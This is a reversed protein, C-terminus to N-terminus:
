VAEKTNESLVDEYMLKKGGDIWMSEIGKVKFSFGEEEGWVYVFRGKAKYMEDVKLLTLLQIIMDCGYATGVRRDKDESWNDLSIYGINQHFGEEYNVTINFTLFGRDGCLGFSASEIHALRKTLVM